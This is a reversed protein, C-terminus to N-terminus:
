SHAELFTELTLSSPLAIDHCALRSGVQRHRPFFARHLHGIPPFGDFFTDYGQFCPSMLTSISDLITPLRM